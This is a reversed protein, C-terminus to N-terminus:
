SWSPRPQGEFPGALRPSTTSPSLTDPPVTPNRKEERREM